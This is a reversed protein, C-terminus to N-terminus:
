LGLVRILKDVLSEDRGEQEPIKKLLYGKLIVPDVNEINIVLTPLYKKRFAIYIDKVSTNYVMWFSHMEAFPYFREDLYIGIPTVRYKVNTPHITHLYWFTVASVIITIIIIFWDRQWASYALLSFITLGAISYWKITRESKQFSPAEWSLVSKESIGGQGKDTALNINNLSEDGGNM